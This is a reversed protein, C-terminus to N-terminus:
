LRAREGSATDEEAEGGVMLPIPTKVEGGM